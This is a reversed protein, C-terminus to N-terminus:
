VKIGRLRNYEALHESSKFGGVGHKAYFEKAAKNRDSPSMQSPTSGPISAPANATMRENFLRLIAPDSLMAAHLPNESSVTGDENRVFEFGLESFEQSTVMDKMDISFKEFASNGGMEITLAEKTKTAAEEAQARYQEAMDEQQKAQYEIVSAVLAKVGEATNVPNKAAHEAFVGALGEDKEFGEPLEDPWMNAKYDEPTELAGLSKNFESRDTETADESPIKIMGETKARAATQNDKGSKLAAFLDQGNRLAFGALDEQGMEALAAAAEAKPTGDPNYIKAIPSNDWTVTDSSPTPEPSSSSEPAPTSPTQQDSM